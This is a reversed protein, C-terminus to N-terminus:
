RYEIDVLSRFFEDFRPSIVAHLSSVQVAHMKTFIEFIRACLAKYLDSLDFM